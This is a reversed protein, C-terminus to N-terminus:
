GSLRQLRLLGPLSFSKLTRLYQLFLLGPGVLVVQGMLAAAAAAPTQSALRRQTTTQAQAVAVQVVLGPLGQGRGAVVAV